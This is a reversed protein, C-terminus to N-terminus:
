AGACWAKFRPACAKAHVYAQGRLCPIDRGRDHLWGVMQLLRALHQEKVMERDFEPQALVEQYGSMFATYRADYDKDWPSGISVAVDIAPHGFGCDDFDIAHADKGLFLVNGHHLDAHLLWSVGSQERTVLRTMLRENTEEMIDHLEGTLGVHRWSLFPGQDHGLLSKANWFPRDFQASPEFCQAHEHLMALMKGVRRVSWTTSKHVFRGPVWRFLLAQRASVGLTQVTVRYGDEHAVPEPVKFGAQTLAHLWEIESDLEALTHYNPRALRLLFRSGSPVDIRFTMNEGHSLTHMSADKLGWAALAQRGAVRLRRVQGIQTLENWPKM